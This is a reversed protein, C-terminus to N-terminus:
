ELLLDELMGIERDTIGQACAYDRMTGWERRVLNLTAAMAEPRPSFVQAPVDRVIECYGPASRMREIILAIHNTTAAYDDVIDDDCVGLAGLVVAALIGTRDKGAACHFVVPEIGRSIILRMAKALDSGATLLMGFYLASMDFDARERAQESARRQGDLIPLHFYRVPNVIFPARGDREVEETNRLDIVTRIGLETRAKRGDADTMWHLSDSRFIQRWRVTRGDATSYGGLDRFNFAAEFKVTRELPAGSAIQSHLNLM